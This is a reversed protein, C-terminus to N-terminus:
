AWAAAQDKLGDGFNPSLEDTVGGFRILMPALRRSWRGMAQEYSDATQRPFTIAPATLPDFPTTDSM